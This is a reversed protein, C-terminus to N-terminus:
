DRADAVTGCRKLLFGWGFGPRTQRCSASPRGLPALSIATLFYVYKLPIHELLEQPVLACRFWTPCDLTRERPMVSLLATCHFRLCELGTGFIVPCAPCRLASVCHILGHGHARGRVDSPYIGLCALYDFVDFGLFISTEERSWAPWSASLFFGRRTISRRPSTESHSLRLRELRAPAAPAPLYAPSSRAIAGEDAAVGGAHRVARGMRRAGCSSSRIGARHLRRLIPPLGCGAGRVGALRKLDVGGAQCVAVM